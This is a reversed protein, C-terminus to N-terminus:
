AGAGGCGERRDRLKGVGLAIEREDDTVADRVGIDFGRDAAGRRQERAYLQEVHISALSDFFPLLGDRNMDRQTRGALGQGRVFHFGRKHIGSADQEFTKTGHWSSSRTPFTAM